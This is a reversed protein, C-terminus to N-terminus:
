RRRAEASAGAYCIAEADCLKECARCFEVCGDPEVVLAKGDRAEFVGHPCFEVCTLCGTCKEPDVVPYWTTAV